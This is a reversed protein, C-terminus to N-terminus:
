KLATSIELPVSFPRSTPCFHTVPRSRMMRTEHHLCNFRIRGLSNTDIGCSVDVILSVSCPTIVPFGNAVLTWNPFPLKCYITNFFEAGWIIGKDPECSLEISQFKECFVHNSLMRRASIQADNAAESRTDLKEVCYTCEQGVFFYESRRPQTTGQGKGLAYILFVQIESNALLLFDM